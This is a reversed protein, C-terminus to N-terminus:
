VAVVLVVDLLMAVFCALRWGYCCLVVLVTVARVELVVVPVKYVTVAALVAVSIRVAVM